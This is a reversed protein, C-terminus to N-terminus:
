QVTLFQQAAVQQQIKVESNWALKLKYILLQQVVDQKKRLKKQNKTEWDFLCRSFRRKIMETAFAVMLTRHVVQEM